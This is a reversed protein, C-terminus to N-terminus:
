DLKLNSWDFHLDIKLYKFNWSNLLLFSTIEKLLYFMFIFIFGKSERNKTKKFMVIMM